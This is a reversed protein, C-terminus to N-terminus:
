ARAGQPHCLILLLDLVFVLAVIGPEFILIYSWLFGNEFLAVFAMVVMLAVLLVNAMRLLADYQHWLRVLLYAMLAFEALVIGWAAIDHLTVTTPDNPYLCTAIFSLGFAGAVFRYGKGVDWKQPLYVLLHFAILLAALTGVLCFAATSLPTVVSHNSITYNLGKYNLAVVLASVAALGAVGVVGAYKGTAVNHRM